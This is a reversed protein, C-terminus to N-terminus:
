LQPSFWNHKPTSPAIKYARGVIVCWLYYSWLVIVSFGTLDRWDGSMSTMKGVSWLIEWVVSVLVLALLLWLLLNTNRLRFDNLAIDPAYKGVSFLWLLLAPPVFASSIFFALLSDDYRLLGSAASAIDSVVGETIFWASGLLFGLLPLTILIARPPTRLGSRLILALIGIFLSVGALDLTAFHSFRRPLHDPDGELNEAAVSLLGDSGQM